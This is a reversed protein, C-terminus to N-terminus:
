KKGGRSIAERLISNIRGGKHTTPKDKNEVFSASRHSIDKFPTDEVPEDTEALLEEIQEDSLGQECPAIAYLAGNEAQVGESEESFGVGTECSPALIFSNAPTDIAYAGSDGVPRVSTLESGITTEISPFQQQLWDYQDQAYGAPPPVPDTCRTPMNDTPTVASHRWYNMDGIREITAAAGPAPQYCSTPAWTTTRVGGGPLSEQMQYIGLPKGADDKLATVAGEGHAKAFEEKAKPNSTYFDRAQSGSAYAIYSQEGIRVERGGLPSDATDQGDAGAPVIRLNLANGHADPIGRISIGSADMQCTKLDLRSKFSRPVGRISNVAESGVEYGSAEVGAGRGAGGPTSARGLLPGPANQGYGAPRDPGYFEADGHGAGSSHSTGLSFAMMFTSIGSKFMGGAAERIGLGLSRLFADLKIGVYLIGVMMTAWVFVAAVPSAGTHAGLFNAVATPSANLATFFARAILVDLTIVLMQTVLSRFWLKLTRATMQSVGFAMAVPSIVLSIGLMVYRTVFKTFFSYCQVTIMILMVLYVVCGTLGAMQAGFSVPLHGETADALFWQLSTGFFNHEVDAANALITSCFMGFFQETWVVLKPAITIGGMCLTARLILVVSHERADPASNRILAMVCFLFTLSYALIIMIQIESTMSGFVTEFLSSGNGIDLKFMSVTTPGVIGMLGIMANSLVDVIAAILSVLPMIALGSIVDAVSGIIGLLWAGIALIGDWVYGFFGQVASAMYQAYIDM